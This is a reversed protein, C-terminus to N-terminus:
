KKIENFFTEFTEYPTKDSKPNYKDMFKISLDFPVNQIQRVKDFAEKATESEQVVEEFQSFEHKKENLKTMVKEVVLDAIKDITADDFGEQLDGNDTEVNEDEYIEINKPSTIGVFGSKSANELEWTSKIIPIRNEAVWLIPSIGSYIEKAMALYNVVGDTRPSTYEDHAHISILFNCISQMEDGIHIKIFYKNGSDMNKLTWRKANKKLTFKILKPRGEQLEDEIEVVNENIIKVKKM